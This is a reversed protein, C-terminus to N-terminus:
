AEHVVGDLIKDLDALRYPKAIQGRFGEARMEASGGDRTFGSCLIARVQPDIGLMERLCDVGRLRPMEMDIMVVTIRGRERTFVEVGERGDRAELVEWGLLELLQRASGRVLEEDDVLLIVGRSARGLQAQKPISEQVPEDSLPLLLQFRTGRGLESHLLISGHHDQVTGWVAALGLGTGKGVPKTTFFPEFIRARVADDMGQGTDSMTIEVYRGASVPLLLAAGADTTISRLCTSIRLIGGDPMADRANLGLNLLANQLQAPDGVVNSSGSQLAVELTIRKDLGSQLMSVADRIVLHIDLTSAMGRGKRAFTLLKRTLDAARECSTLIGEILGTRRIPDQAYRILEASGMIGALMNNFDHAMGGALQGISEMKQVHRLQEELRNREAMDRVVAVMVQSGPIDLRVLGIEAPFVTGDGRIHLWPFHITGGNGASRLLREEALTSLEGDAQHAPSLDAPSQGILQDATRGFVVTARANVEVLRGDRIVLVGDAVSNVITRAFQEREQLEAERSVVAAAMTSFARSLDGVEDQRRTDLRIDKSGAALAAAAESLSRLPGGVRLRLVIILLLSQAAIMGAGIMLVHWAGRRAQDEVAAVPQFTAMTWAPGTFRSVGVWGSGDSLTVLESFVGQPAIERDMMSLLADNARSLVLNGSSERVRDGLRSHALIRGGADFVVTDGAADQRATARALLEDVPLVQTIAMRGVGPVDLAATAAIRWSNTAPELYAQSWRVPGPDGLVEREAPLLVPDTPLMADALAVAEDGWGVLWAKPVAITLNSPMKAWAPGMEEILDRAVGAAAVQVPDQAVLASVFVALPPQLQRRSEDQETSIPRNGGARLRLHLLRRCQTVQDAVRDFLPQERLVREEAQRELSQLSLTREQAMGQHWNWATAVAVVLATGLALPVLAQALIGVRWRQLDM